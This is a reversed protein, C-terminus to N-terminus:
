GACYLAEDNAIDHDAIQFVIYEVGESQSATKSDVRGDTRTKDLRIQPVQKSNLALNPATMEDNTADTANMDDDGQTTLKEKHNAIFLQDTLVM